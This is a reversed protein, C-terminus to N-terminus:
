ISGNLPINRKFFLVVVTPFRDFSHHQKKKAAKKSSKKGKQKRWFHESTFLNFYPTLCIFIGLCEAKTLKSQARPSLIVEILAFITCKHFLVPLWIHKVSRTIMSKTM